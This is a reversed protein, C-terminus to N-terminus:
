FEHAITFSGFVPKRRQGDFEQSRHYRTLAFKWDDYRVQFGYSLEGVVPRRDVSHSNRFTNGDLVLSHLVWRVDAGVFVHGSWGRGHGSSPRRPATNDGAAWLPLSGFDDPLGRGYRWQMGTVLNTTITGLSGGWHVLADMNPSPGDWRQTWERQLQFVPEDHLQNSWGQFDSSGTIQHVADQVEQGRASPGVWGLRVLRSDLRNGTRGHYGFTGVLLAAYPRDDAILDSRTGDTPTYIAQAFSFTMNRQEAHHPQLWTFAHNVWRAASPLCPDDTYDTVNPSAFTFVIGNTYGEDQGGLLDNDVRVSVSPPQGERVPCGDGPDAFAPGGCALVTGALLLHIPRSPTTHPPM